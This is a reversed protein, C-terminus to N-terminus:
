IQVKICDAQPQIRLNNLSTLLDIKEECKKKLNKLFM